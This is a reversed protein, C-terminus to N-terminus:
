KKGTSTGSSSGSSSGPNVPAYYKYQYKLPEQTNDPNGTGPEVGEGDPGLGYPGPAEDNGAPGYGTGPEVEDEGEQGPGYPGPAEESGAPGPGAGPGPTFSPPNAKSNESDMLRTRLLTPNEVGQTAEQIRDQLMMHVQSTVPDAEDPMNDTEMIRVQIMLTNRMQLMAQQLPADEMGAALELMFRTHQELRTAWEAPMPEGNTALINYEKFRNQVYESLLDYKAQPSDLLEYRFDETVVKVPYLLDNPLSDQAAFVTAGTGGFLLALVVLLSTLTPLMKFEKGIISHIWGKLRMKPQPSVAAKMMRAQSLFAARGREASEPSRPTTPRILDLAEQLRPELHEQHEKM